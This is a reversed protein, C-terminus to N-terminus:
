VETVADAYTIDDATYTSGSFTKLIWGYSNGTSIGIPDVHNMFNGISSGALAVIKSSSELNNIRVNYSGGISQNYNYVGFFVVSRYIYNDFRDILKDANNIEDGNRDLLTINIQYVIKDQQFTQSGRVTNNVLTINHRYLKGGSSGGGSTGDPNIWLIEDSTPAAGQVAVETKGTISTLAKTSVTGDTGLVVASDASPTTPKDLKKDLELKRVVDTSETPASQVKARGDKLVTFANSRNSSTGNGLIFMANTVNENYKGAVFQGTEANESKTGLGTVFSNPTYAITDSGIAISGWKNSNNNYGIAVSYQSSSNNNSGISVTQNASSTNNKGISVSDSGTSKNTNGLSVSAYGEAKNASGLSVSAFGKAESYNGGALSYKEGAKCNNGYAFSSEKTAQSDIGFVAAGEGDYKSTGAVTRIGFSHSFNSLAKTHDGMASAGAGWSENAIGIAASGRDKAKVEEGAAFAYSNSKSYISGSDDTIPSPRVNGDRDTAFHENFEEETFGAVTKSGFAVSNNQYAKNEEGDFTKQILSNEGTGNELNLKGSVALARAVIDIAM